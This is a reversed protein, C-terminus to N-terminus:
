MITHLLGILAEHCISRDVKRMALTTEDSISDRLVCKFSGDCRKYTIAHGPDTCKCKPCPRAPDSEFHAEMITIEAYRKFSARGKRNLLTPIVWEDAAGARHCARKGTTDRLREVERVENQYLDHTRKKRCENVIVQADERTLYKWQTGFCRGANYFAPLSGDHEETYGLCSHEFPPNIYTSTPATPICDGSVQMHCSLHLLCVEVHM